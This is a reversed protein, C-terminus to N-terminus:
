VEVKEKTEGTSVLYRYTLVLTIISIVVAIASGFGMRGLLFSERYLSIALTESARGPGGQIMVWPIDFMRVTNIIANAVVVLGIPKLLPLTVNFFVQKGNAGDIRAAEIPEKPITELGVLFLILNLGLFQWTWVGIMLFTNIDPNTILPQQSISLMEFLSNLAGKQSALVRQWFIGAITPSLTTPIFFIIKFFSQMKIKSILVALLLALGVPFLLTGIVWFVTNLMAHRIESSAFIEFYNSLGVWEPPNIIDWEMFGLYTTYVVPILESFLVFALAPLLFVYPSSFIKKLKVSTNLSM